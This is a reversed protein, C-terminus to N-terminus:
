IRERKKNQFGAVNENRTEFLAGFVQCFDDKSANFIM